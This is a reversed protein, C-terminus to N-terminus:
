LIWVLNSIFARSTEFVFDSHYCYVTRCSFCSVNEVDSLFVCYTSTTGPPKNVSGCNQCAGACLRGLPKARDLNSRCFCNDATSFTSVVIFQSSFILFFTDFPLEIHTLM